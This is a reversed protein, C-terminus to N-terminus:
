LEPRPATKEESFTQRTECLNLQIDRVWGPITNENECDRIGGGPAAAEKKQREKETEIINLALQQGGCLSHKQLFLTM